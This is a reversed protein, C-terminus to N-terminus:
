LFNQQQGTIPKVLITFTEVFLTDNNSIGMDYNNVFINQGRGKEANVHMSLAMNKLAHLIYIFHLDMLKKKQLESSNLCIFYGNLLEHM